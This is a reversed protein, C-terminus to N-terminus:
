FTWYLNLLASGLNRNQEWRHSYGLGISFNRDFPIRLEAELHHGSDFPDVEGSFSV